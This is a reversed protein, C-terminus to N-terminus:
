SPTDDFTLLNSVVHLLSGAVIEANVATPDTALPAPVPAKRKAPVKGMLHNSVWQYYLAEANGKEIM